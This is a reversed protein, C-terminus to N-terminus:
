REPAKTQERAPGRGYLLRFERAIKGASETYVHIGSGEITQTVDGITQLVREDKHYITRIESGDFVVSIQPFNRRLLETLNPCGNKCGSGYLHGSLIGGDRVDRKVILLQEFSTNPNLRKAEVRVGGINTQYFSNTQDLIQPRVGTSLYMKLALERERPTLITSNRELLSPLPGFFSEELETKRASYEAIKGELETKRASYKAIENQVAVDRAVDHIGRYVGIATGTAAGLFGALLLGNVVNTRVKRRHESTKKNEVLKEREEKLLGDMALYVDDVKVPLGIERIGGMMASFSLVQDQEDESRVEGKYLQGVVRNRIRELDEPTPDRKFRKRFSDAIGQEDIETM